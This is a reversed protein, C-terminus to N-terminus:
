VAKKRRDHSKSKQPTAKLDYIVSEFEVEDMDVDIIENVLHFLLPGDWAVELKGESSDAM